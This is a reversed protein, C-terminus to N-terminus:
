QQAPEVFLLASLQDVGFSQSFGQKSLEQGTMTMQAGTDADTIVYTITKDLGKFWLSKSFPGKAAWRYVIVGAEQNRRGYFTVSAADASDAPQVLEYQNYKKIANLRRYNQIENLVVSRQHNRIKSLDSSIGWVGAMASRCYYKTFEDDGAHQDLQNTWRYASWPFVFELAGLAVQINNRADPLDSGPDDLLWSLQTALLTQENIMHGGDQCNEIILDPNARRVARLASQFALVTRM